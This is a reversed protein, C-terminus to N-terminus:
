FVWCVDTGLVVERDGVDVAGIPAVEDHGGVEVEEECEEGHADAAGVIGQVGYAGEVASPLAILSAHSVGAEAKNAAPGLAAQRSPPTCSPWTGMRAM